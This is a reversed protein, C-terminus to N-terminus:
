KYNTLMATIDPIQGQFLQLSETLTVGEILLPKMMEQTQRRKISNSAKQLCYREELHRSRRLLDEFRNTIIPAYDHCGHKDANQSVAIILKKRASLQEVETAQRDM